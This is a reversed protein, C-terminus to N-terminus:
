EERLGPKEVPEARDGCVISCWVEGEVDVVNLLCVSLGGDQSYVGGWGETDGAEIHTEWGGETLVGTYFVVVDTIPHTTTFTTIELQGVWGAGAAPNETRVDVGQAAPYLPLRISSKGPLGTERRMFGWGLYAVALVLFLAAAALAAIGLHSEKLHRPSRDSDGTLNM